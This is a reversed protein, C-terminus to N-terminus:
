AAETVPAATETTTPSPGMQAVEAQAMAAMGLWAAERTPARHMGEKM